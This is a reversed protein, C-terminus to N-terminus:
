EKGLARRAIEYANCSRCQYSGITNLAKVAADQEMRLDALVGQDAEHQAELAKIQEQQDYCQSLMDSYRSRLEATKM